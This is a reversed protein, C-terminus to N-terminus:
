TASNLAARRGRALRLRYDEGEFELVDCLEVLRSAMRPDSEHLSQLSLNSTAILTRNKTYAADVLAFLCTRVFETPKETGIDDLAIYRHLSKGIIADPTTQEAFAAQCKMAFATAGIFGADAGTKVLERITAVALHTKGTGCKGTLLLGTSKDGSLWRRIFELKQNLSANYAQFAGLSLSAYREPVGRKQMLASLCRDSCPAEPATIYFGRDVRQKRALIASIDRTRKCIPCTDEIVAGDLESVDKIFSGLYHRDCPSAMLSAM